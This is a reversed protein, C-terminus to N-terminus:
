SNNTPVKKPGTFCRLGLTQLSDSMYYIGYKLRFKARQPYSINKPSFILKILNLCLYNPGKQSRHPMEFRFNSAFGVYFFKGYKLRIKARQPYSFLKPRFILKILNM